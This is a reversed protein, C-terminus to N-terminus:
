SESVGCDCGDRIVGVALFCKLCHMLLHSCGFVVHGDQGVCHFGGHLCGAGGAAYWALAEEPPRGRCVRLSAGLLGTAVRAAPGSRLLDRRPAHLRNVQFLGLSAGHDGVAAPDFDSEFKALAVLLAATREAGDHGAFLPHEEAADAIAFATDVYTDAWPAGPSAIAVILSLVWAAM